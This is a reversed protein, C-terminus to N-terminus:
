NKTVHNKGRIISPLKERAQRIVDMTIKTTVIEERGGSGRALVEGWPSVIMSHGFAPMGRADKGVQNPALVYSLTEIARARLLVEWHAKGTEQMFCSPVALVNAGKDALKRYLDGFRLDYCISLGLRFGEVRHVVTTRGPVYADAEHVIKDGLCAEFLHIKRYKAEVTGKPGILVSTNHAKHPDSSKELVSGLLIHARYQRALVLFPDTSPGPINEAAALRGAAQGRWHFMEPLAVFQAGQSLAREALGCARKVNSNKDASANFQILAVRM